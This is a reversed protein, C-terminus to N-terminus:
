HAAIVGKDYTQHSYTQPAKLAASTGTSVSAWSRVTDM